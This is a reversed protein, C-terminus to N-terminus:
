IVNAINEIHTRIIRFCVYWTHLILLAVIVKLWFPVSFLLIAFFGMNLVFGPGATGMKPTSMPPWFNIVIGLLILGIIGKAVLWYWDNPLLAILATPVWSLLTYLFVTSWVSQNSPSMKASGSAQANRTHEIAIKAEPAEVDTVHLFGRKLLNKRYWENGFAGIILGFAVTRFLGVSVRLTENEILPPHELIPILVQLGYLLPNADKEMGYILNGLLVYALFFLTGRVYMGKYVLWM